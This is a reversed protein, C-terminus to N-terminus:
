RDGKIEYYYLITGPFGDVRCQGSIPFAQEAFVKPLRVINNRVNLGDASVTARTNAGNWGNM